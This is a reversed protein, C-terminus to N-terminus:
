TLSHAVLMHMAYHLLCVKLRTVATNLWLVPFQNDYYYFVYRWYNKERVYDDDGNEVFSKRILLCICRGRYNRPLMPFAWSTTKM